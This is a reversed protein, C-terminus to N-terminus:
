QFFPQCTITKTHYFAYVNYIVDKQAAEILIMILYNHLNKSSSMKKEPLSIM